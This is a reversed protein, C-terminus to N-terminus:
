GAPKFGFYGFKKFAPHAESFLKLFFYAILVLIAIRWPDPRTRAREAFASRLAVLPSVDRVALLPLLPILLAVSRAM